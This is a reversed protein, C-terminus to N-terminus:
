LQLCQKSQNGVEFKELFVPPAYGQVGGETTELRYFNDLVNKIQIGTGYRSIAEQDKKSVQPLKFQSGSEYQDLHFYPQLQEHTFPVNTEMVTDSIPRSLDYDIKLSEWHAMLFTDPFPLSNPYDKLWNEVENNPGGYMFERQRQVNDGSGHHRPALIESHSAAAARPTPSPSSDSARYLAEEDIYPDYYRAMNEDAELQLPESKAAEEFDHLADHVLVCVRRYLNRDFAYGQQPLQYLLARDIRNVRDIFTAPSDHGGEEQLYNLAQTLQRNIIEQQSPEGDSISIEESGPLEILRSTHGGPPNAYSSAM